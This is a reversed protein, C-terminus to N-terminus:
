LERTIAELVMGAADRVTIRVEVLALDPFALDTLVVSGAVPTATVDLGGPGTLTVTAVRPDTVEAVVAETSSLETGAAGQPLERFGYTMRTGRLTRGPEFVGPWLPGGGRTLDHVTVTGDQRCLLLLNGYHGLQVSESATLAVSQGTRWAAPDPVPWSPDHLCEALRRGEPSDRDEPATPRDVVTTAHPPTTLEFSQFPPPTESSPGAESLTTVGDAIFGNPMLFLRGVRAVNVTPPLMGVRPLLTFPLTDPGTFGAMSGTATTFAVTLAGPDTQPTSVTVSQPTTECFVTGAGTEFAMLDVRHRSATALATWRDPPPLDTRAARCRETAGEPASGTRLDYSRDTDRITPEPIATPDGRDTLQLALTTVTAVAVAVAAVKLPLRRPPPADFGERLRVLATARVADPLPSSPPLDLDTM